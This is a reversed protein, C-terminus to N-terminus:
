LGVSVVLPYNALRQWAYLREIGDVSAPSQYLGSNREPHSLFEREPPMNQDLVESQLHSRALYAGDARVLLAVDKGQTFVERFNRSLYEPNVSLVVVGGFGGQHEVPYSMQVSWQGSLRGLTPRSIYIRQGANLTHAQFHARDEISVANTQLGDSPTLSSYVIQGNAAAVAIQLLSGPPFTALANGAALQFAHQPDSEYLIALNRALYELGGMLTGVQVALTRSVQSARLETQAQAFALQDRQQGLLQWWYAACALLLLVLTGAIRWQALIKKM